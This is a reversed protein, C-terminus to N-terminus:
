SSLFRSWTAYCPHARVFDDSLSRARSADQRYARFTGQTRDYRYLGSPTDAVRNAVCYLDLSESRHLHTHGRALALIQLLASRPMASTEFRAASRRQRIATYVATASIPSAQHPNSSRM